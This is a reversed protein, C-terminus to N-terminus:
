KSKYKKELSKIDDYFQKEEATLTFGNKMRVRLADMVEATKLYRNAWGNVKKGAFKLRM